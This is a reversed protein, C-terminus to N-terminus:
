SMGAFMGGTSSLFTAFGALGASESSSSALCSKFYHDSGMISSQRIIVHTTGYIIWSEMVMMTMIMQRFNRCKHEEEGNINEM